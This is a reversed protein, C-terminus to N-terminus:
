HNISVCCCDPVTQKSQFKTVKNAGIGIVKNVRKRCEDSLEAMYNLEDLHNEYLHQAFVGPKKQNITHEVSKMATWRAGEPMGITMLGEKQLEPDWWGNTSDV